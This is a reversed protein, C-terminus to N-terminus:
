KPLRALAFDFLATELRERDKESLEQFAFSARVNGPRRVVSSLVVRLILPDGGPLKLTAGPREKQDPAQALMVSFGGCSLELTMARVNGSAFGLDVQVGQAVRFSQRASQGAEVTLGQAGCLARAMQERAAAYAKQDAESLSRKKAREHLERFQHIWEGVNM